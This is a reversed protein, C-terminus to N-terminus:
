NYMYSLSMNKIYIQLHDPWMDPLVQIGGGKEADNSRWANNRLGKEWM